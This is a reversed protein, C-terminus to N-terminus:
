RVVIKQVKVNEGNILRLMYVGSTANITKSVSGNVTESSLIRGTIDVVQLTAEGANNIIWNGNSYFAFAASGTSAGDENNNNAAFVLRFRSEYDRTTANFTYSPTQLLDIDAGTMNDILHLYNMEVNEPNVTLTYTGNENARFNVPMEGQAETSVIAYEETGQPIYVNANQTGFYFKGLQSGENFSVIANDLTVFSSRNTAQQSVTMQLNGLPASKSQTQSFSFEHESGDTNDVIIGTCPAVPDNYLEATIGTHTDNMKYYSMSPYANYAYPNGILNYGQELSSFDTNFNNLSGAFELTVDNANAYLYGHGNILGFNGNDGKFNVWELEVNPDFLYLDFEGDTMNTIDTPNIGDYECNLPSSIFYWGNSLVVNDPDTVDNAVVTYAKINKQITAKVVNNTYLQGGDEIILNSANSNYLAYTGMNLTSGSPIISPGAITMNAAATENLFVRTYYTTTTSATSIKKFLQIPEVGSLAYMAFYHQSNNWRIARNTKYVSVISGVGLTWENYISSFEDDWRLKAGTNNNDNSTTNYGLYAEDGNDYLSYGNTTAAATIEYASTTSNYEIVGNNYYQSIDVYTGSTNTNANGTHTNLVNANNSVILYDGAWNGNAPATTVEQYVTTAPGDAITKGYVAYFTEGGQVNVTTGATSFGTVVNPNTTWGAFVFEDSNLNASTPLQFSGPVQAQTLVGNVSYNINYAQVATATVTTNQNITFTYADAEIDNLHDVGNVTFTSLIYGSEASVSIMVEDGADFVYSGEGVLLPMSQDAANFVFTEVNSLDSVTLTAPRRWSYLYNGEDLEYTDGWKTLNGYVVVIDGAQIDDINEFDTNNLGKGRFAELEATQTGDDSIYYSIKGGSLTNNYRRSVIGSVYVGTPYPAGQNIIALAEAVTYPNAATGHAETVAVTVTVDADPMNFKDGTIATGNVSWIASYAEYGEAPTYTLTVETGYAVPNTKDMTYNGYTDATPLTVTHTNGTWQAYLTTNEDIDFTNDAVYGTGSGDAKTNWKDFTYHEKTFTNALVTVTAGAIYPSNPDTMTGSGGNNDYTVTYTPVGAQTIAIVDCPVWDTGASNFTEVRMYVTRPTTTTNNASTAYNISTVSNTAFSASFWGGTFSTTCADDDYLSVIVDGSAPNSMNNYTVTATHVTQDNYDLTIANNTIGTGIITISPTPAAEQNVTYVNSSYTEGSYVKFYAHREGGENEYVYIQGGLAGSNNYANVYLWDPIDDGTLETTAEASSYYAVSFSPNNGLGSHTGAFSQYSSGTGTYTANYTTTGTFAITPSPATAAANIGWLVARETGVTLTITTAATVGSLTYEKFYATPANEPTALVFTTSSGSINADSTLAWSGSPTISVGTATTSLTLTSSKGKWAACHIYLKTTGAPVSITGSAGSGSSGFKKASYSTGSSSLKVTVNSGATPLAVNSTYVEAQGWGAITPMMFVLLALAAILKTFKKNM